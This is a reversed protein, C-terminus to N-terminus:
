QGNFPCFVAGSPDKVVAFRGIDPIDTAPHLITAGLQECKVLCEDVNGVDIYVGWHPPVEGMGPTEQTAVIGCINTGNENLVTYKQGEMDMPQAEWGMLTTYFTVISETTPGYIEHWVFKSGNALLMIDTSQYASTFLWFPAGNSDAVMGMRGVRDIDMAPVLIKGGLEVAKAMYADTDPCALFTNWMHTVGEMQPHETTGMVGAVGEENNTLMKYVFDGMDHDTDGFGAVEKYFDATEQAKSGYVEHWPFVTACDKIRKELEQQNM